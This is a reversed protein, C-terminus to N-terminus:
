GASCHLEIFRKVAAADPDIVEFRRPLSEIQELGAPRVPARGIAEVITAEFKAPLATELCILPVGTERQERAVKIGDATHTDVIRGSAEFVSRITRLRDAHTSFGSVFGTDAVRAFEGSAKLDFAGRADIERWLAAVRAGDAGVLDFVYREFNSAKSIDM